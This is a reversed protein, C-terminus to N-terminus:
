TAQLRVIRGDPDRVTMLKTGWHTTAFPEVIEVPPRPAFADASALDYFIDVVPTKNPAVENLWIYAGGGPAVLKGSTGHEEVLTWGLEQWFKASKGWNHTEVLLHHIGTVAMTM